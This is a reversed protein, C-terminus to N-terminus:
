RRNDAHILRESNKILPEARDSMQAGDYERGTAFLFSAYDVLGAAGDPKVKLARKYLTEARDYANRVRWLFDAYRGILEVNKPLADLAERFIEDQKSPNSESDVRLVWQWWPEEGEQPALNRIAAEAL